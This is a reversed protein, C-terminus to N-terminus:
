GYRPQSQTNGKGRSRVNPCYKVMHGGKGCGDCSNTGVLCKGVHKKGCKGCTPREKSPDVNRGEQPNPSSGRNNRNKSFNSPFQNSLRKKFKTKDQVDLRSKTSIGEFTKAKKTERNRKRQRSDEVLLAHVM